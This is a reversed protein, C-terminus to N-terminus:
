KGEAAQRRRRFARRMRQDWYVDLPLMVLLPVVPVAICVASIILMAGWPFIREVSILDLREGTLLGGFVLTGAALTSVLPRWWKALKTRKKGFYAAERDADRYAGDIM